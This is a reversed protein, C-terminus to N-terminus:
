AGPPDLAFGQYPSWPPSAGRGFVSELCIPSRNPHMKQPTKATGFSCKYTFKRFIKNFTKDSKRVRLNGYIKSYSRKKDWTVNVNTYSRHLDTFPNFLKRRKIKCVIHYSALQVFLISYISANSAVNSLKYLSRVPIYIYNGQDPFLQFSVM